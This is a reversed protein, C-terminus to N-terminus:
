QGLKDGETSADSRYPVLLQVTDGLPSLLYPDYPSFYSTRKLCEVFRILIYNCREQRIFYPLPGRHDIFAADRTVPILNSSPRPPRLSLRNWCTGTSLDCSPFNPPASSSVRWMIWVSDCLCIYKLIYYPIKLPSVGIQRVSSTTATLMGAESHERPVGHQEQQHGHAEIVASAVTGGLVQNARKYHEDQYRHQYSPVIHQHEQQHEVSENGEGEHGQGGVRVAAAAAAAVAAAASAAAAAAAAVAAVTGVAEMSLSGTAAASSSPRESGGDKGHISGTAGLEQEIEQGQREASSRRMHSEKDAGNGSGINNTSDSNGPTDISSATDLGGGSSGEGRQSESGGGGECVDFGERSEAVGGSTVTTVNETVTSSVSAIDGGEGNSSSSATASVGFSRRGSAYGGSLVGRGRSVASWHNKM